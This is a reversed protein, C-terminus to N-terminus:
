FALSQQMGVVHKRIVKLLTVSVGMVPERVAPKVREVQDCDKLSWHISPQTKWVERTGSALCFM